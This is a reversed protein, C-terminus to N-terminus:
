EEDIPLALFLTDNNRYVLLLITARDKDRAEEMADKIDDVSRAEERNVQLIVDGRRIGRELAIADRSVGRVILGDVDNKIGYQKRDNSGLRELYMGLIEEGEEEGLDEEQNAPQEKEEDELKAVNIEVTVEKGDRLVVVDVDKGVDTEAVIRPLKRMVHVDKDDFSLIVDGVKIGGREAPSGDIVEAVLAGQPKDMGLSEAIEDNVHQIKVGLWGREVSKGQKLQKIIPHALSSPVAFGIGVNGIGNPSFIATSIGIVEGAVNFMPGGSNGRNIAADTQIFDDFPGANIDRARASVIGATVTGGLGFPNGIVFVWDGVRTVDSDGFKVYPLAKDTEVKLVALDTKEDQGIITADLQSEDDLTIKIEEAGDIVHNNTVIYGEPDIIFGSGLSTAKRERMEPHGFFKFLEDFQQFPHGPPLEEFPSEKPMRKGGRPKITKSTSINVVAPAREEILDAFSSPVISAAHAPLTALLVIIFAAVLTYSRM